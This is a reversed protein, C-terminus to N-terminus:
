THYDLSLTGQQIRINARKGLYFARNDPIHGAPFDFFVPYGYEGTIDMITEEISKGWQVRSEDMKNMGGVLLASLADLKGALKLSAMMRDIHYLHEGVDEIFLIRGKTEPEAPTGMLSYLLSLNGGTMEASVDRGRYVPGTWSTAQLKGFLSRKLSELSESTKGPNTYNLPMEGHITVIGCVENLWM